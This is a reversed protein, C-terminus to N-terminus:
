AELYMWGRYFDPAQLLSHKSEHCAKTLREGLEDAKLEARDWFGAGHGRLTLYLDHGFAAEASGADPHSGYGQGARQMAENFLELHINIFIHCIDFAARDSKYTSRPRTGEPSDAWLAAAIFHKAVEQIQGPTAM